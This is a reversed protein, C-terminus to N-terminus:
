NNLIDLSFPILAKMEIWGSGRHVGDSDLKLYLEDFEQETGPKEVLQLWEKALELNRSVWDIEEALLSEYYAILTKITHKLEDATMMKIKENEGEEKPKKMEEVYKHWGIKRILLIHSIAAQHMAGSCDPCVETIADSLNEADENDETCIGFIGEYGCFVPDAKPHEDFWRVGALIMRRCSKEYERGRQGGAKAFGSIERMDHTFVRNGDSVELSHHNM